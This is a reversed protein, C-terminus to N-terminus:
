AADGLNCLNGDRQLLYAARLAARGGPARARFKLCIRTANDPDITSASVASRDDISHRPRASVAASVSNDSRRRQGINPRGFANPAGADISTPTRAARSPLLLLHDPATKM